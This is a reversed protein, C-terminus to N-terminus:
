LQKKACAMINQFFPVTSFVNLQWKKVKKEM